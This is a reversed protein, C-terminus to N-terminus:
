EIGAGGVGWGRVGRWGVWEWHPGIMKDGEGM